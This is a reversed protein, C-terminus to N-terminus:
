EEEEGIKEEEERSKEEGEGMKEEGEEGRRRTKADEHLDGRFRCSPTDSSVTPAAALIPPIVIAM